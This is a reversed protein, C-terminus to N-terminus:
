RDPRGTWLAPNGQWLVTGDTGVLYATPWSKVGYKQHNRNFNDWLVGHHIGSKKACERTAKRSQGKGGDVEIITFGQRAYKEHWKVLRRRM